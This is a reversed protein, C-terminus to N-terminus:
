FLGAKTSNEFCRGFLEPPSFALRCGPCAEADGAAGFFPAVHRTTGLNCRILFGASHLHSPEDGGEFAAGDQIRIMELILDFAGRYHAQAAGEEFRDLERVALDQVWLQRAVADGSKLVRR